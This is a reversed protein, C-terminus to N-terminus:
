ANEEIFFNGHLTKYEEYVRQVGDFNLQYMRFTVEINKPQWQEVYSYKYEMGVKKMVEGSAVNNVDHTATVYCYGNAKLRDLVALVAETVIGKGWYEKALGYGIDYSENDSLTVYGIPKDEDKLTIAYRYASPREYYDFYTLKMFSHAKAHSTIPFWPLYVNVETDSLLAQMAAVDDATFRRLVLRETVLKPTNEVKM